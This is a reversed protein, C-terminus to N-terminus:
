TWSKTAGGPEETWPTKGDLINFHTAMKEERPGEQCLCQLWTEEMEQM